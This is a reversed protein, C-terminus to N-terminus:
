NLQQRRLEAQAEAARIAAAALVQAGAMTARGVLLAGSLSGLGILAPVMLDHLQDMAANVAHGGANHVADAIHQGAQTGLHDSVGTGQVAQHPVGTNQVTDQATSQVTHQITETTPPPPFYVDPMVDGISPIAQGSSM